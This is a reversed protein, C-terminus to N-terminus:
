EEMLQKIVTLAKDAVEQKSLFNSIIIVPQKIGKFLHALPESTLVLDFSEGRSTTEDSCFTDAKLDAQKLVGDLTMRLIMSSGLGFGCVVMIKLKKM